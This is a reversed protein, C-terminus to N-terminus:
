HFRFIRFKKSFLIRMEFILLTKSILVEVEELMTIVLGCSEGNDVFLLLVSYPVSLRPELKDSPGVGKEDPRPYTRHKSRNEKTTASEATMVKRNATRRSPPPPPPLSKNRAEKLLSSLVGV